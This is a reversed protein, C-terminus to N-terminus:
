KVNSTPYVEEFVSDLYSAKIDVDGEGVTPTDVLRWISTLPPEGYHLVIAGVLWSRVQSPPGLSLYCMQSLAHHLGFACSTRHM